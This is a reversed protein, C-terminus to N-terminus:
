SREDYHVLALFWQKLSISEKMNVVWYIGWGLAFSPGAIYANITGTEDFTLTLDMVISIVFAALMNALRGVILREDSTAYMFAFSFGLVGFIIGYILPVNLLSGYINIVEKNYFRFIIYALWIVISSIIRSLGDRQNSLKIISFFLAVTIGMSVIALVAPANSL